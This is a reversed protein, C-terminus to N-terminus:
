SRFPAYGVGACRPFRPLLQSQARIMEVLSGEEQLHNIREFLHPLKLFVVHGEHM